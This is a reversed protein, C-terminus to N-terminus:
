SSSGVDTAFIRALGAVIREQDFEEVALQRANRGLRGCLADDEIMRLCADAFAEPRDAFLADRGPVMGLGEAGLTTTAIPKGWAAAEILKVRTGGGYRVPCVVLRASAYVAALDDVFGLFRVNAPAAKFSPLLEIHAGVLWLEAAPRRVRVQPLIHNIFFEAADANPAYGYTGVMLMVEGSVVSAIGPPVAVANPLARVTTALFLSSLHRVDSTSCVFSQRATRVARWEAILLGPLWLLLLLKERLRSASAATRLALKHEIDDMDFYIPPLRGRVRLLAFMSTLRHAVVFNPAVASLEDVLLSHLELSALLRTPPTRGYGLAGRLEQLLWPLRSPRRRRAVRARAKIRWVEHLETEVQGELARLAGDETDVPAMTVVTISAGSATMAQMLTRLRRYTGHTSKRLDTLPLPTVLLCRAPM